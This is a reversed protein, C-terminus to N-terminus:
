PGRKLHGMIVSATTKLNFYTVGDLFNGYNAQTTDSQPSDSSWVYQPYSPFATVNPYATPPEADMISLLESRNNQTWDTLGSVSAANCAAAFAFISNCVVKISRSGGAAESILTSRVSNNQVTIDLDAGNVAVGLIPYAALNNVANAWGAMLICHGVHYRTLEGAGGVIRIINPAVAQLDAAAAHLTFCHAVDHWVLAGVSSTERGIKLGSSTYSMWERKVGSVVVNNDYATQNSMAARKCITVFVTASGAEDVIPTTADILIQGAVNGTQVLFPGPNLPSGPCMITDATKVVALGGAPDTILRTAATFTISAAAYTPVDINTSGSYAGTNNVTYSKATGNRKDGDDGHAYATLQGTAIPTGIDGSGGFIGSLGPM